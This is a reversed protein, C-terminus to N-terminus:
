EHLGVGKDPVIAASVTAAPLGGKSEKKVCRYVSIALPPLKTAIHQEEGQWPEEVSHLRETMLQGSGGFVEDDSNFIEEYEGAAPVPIKYDYHVVPTFNCIVLLFEGAKNYRVFSLISHERDNCDMWRFGSWDFDQEWLESHETYFHNLRRVYDQTKKHNPYNLLLWDLGQAENWEIYQGFEGGMFLLKKGPHTMWYGYFLRLNAFQQWYDGPMKQLLSRKGHVVEDHSLPLVYNESFAYTMSFTLLDQHYKRYVSDREIYSLSDNMWGMNWKYNFGLGGEYAPRSVMPWATSEEAIMLAGPIERFVVENLKRFFEIAEINERGGYQNPRWQGGRGYDLYLMNAVADVRLGDFHFETMWYLANSILFSVVEPKGLDFHLTGWGPNEAKVSDSYEYLPTGDFLRLGQSDKCFHGPVWDLIVSLGERHCRDIFYALDEPAGFRSTPAYYGTSQYGWSMDLPHEMIPMLELHTYGMDKVYAPLEEALERYTYLTGDEHQRWSGLHVEYTLMPATYSAAEQRGDMWAKDKWEYPEFSPVQSATNPRLATARGYPDAKFVINGYQDEVAYQYYSGSELGPMFVTWLTEDAALRSLPTAGPKWDNFDGVLSVAKAYPAWLTFRVGTSGAEADAHPGMWEWARWLRGEHFVIRGLEGPEWGSRATTREEKMEKM